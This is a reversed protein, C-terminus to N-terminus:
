AGRETKEETASLDAVVRARKRSTTLNETAAILLALGYIPLSLTKAYNSVVIVVDKFGVLYIYPIPIAYLLSLVAVIKPLRGIYIKLLLELYLTILLLILSIIIYLLQPLQIFRDPINNVIITYDKVDVPATAYIPKAGPELFVVLASLIVAVLILLVDRGV